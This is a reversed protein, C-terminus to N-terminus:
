KLRTCFGSASSGSCTPVRPSDERAAGARRADAGRPSAGEPDDAFRQALAEVQAAGSCLQAARVYSRIPRTADFKVSRCDSKM